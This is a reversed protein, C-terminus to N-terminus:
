SVPLGSGSRSTPDGNRGISSASATRRSAGRRRPSSSTTTTFSWPLHDLRLVPHPPTSERLQLRLQDIPLGYPQCSFDLGPRPRYKLSRFCPPPSVEQYIEGTVAQFGILFGNHTRIFSLLVLFRSSSCSYSLRYGPSLFSSSSSTPFLLHPIGKSGSRFQGCM